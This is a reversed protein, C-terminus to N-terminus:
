GIKKRALKKGAKRAAKRAVRREERRREKEGRYSRGPDIVFRRRVAERGLLMRFGMEDRGVLSVEISWEHRMLRVRTVIIPRCTVHGSSSRVYRWELIPAEVQASHRVDRQLPHIRFRVWEEGRREFFEMDFAHLTSSRAGTDIKAKIAAIGFEPLQLWERWGIVPLESAPPAPM